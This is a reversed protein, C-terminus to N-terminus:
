RLCRELADNFLEPQEMNLLHGADALIELSSGPIRKHLDKAVSVPIIQDEAGHIILVPLDITAAMETSDPRDRLGELAAIVGELTASEMITRVKRVLDPRSQYTKPAMMKPLM